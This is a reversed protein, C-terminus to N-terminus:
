KPPLIFGPKLLLRIVERLSLISHPKVLQIAALPMAPSEADDPDQVLTYGGAKKIALLGEAGDANAGTLVIGVLQSGFTDAATEFLVDISPRSYNVKDDASLSLTEDAEVLLHYDPPAIYVVGAALKEKEDAEKVRINSAADLMRSMYNDSMPSIHQVILVPCPFDVPLAPLLKKLAMLGGASAGIVVARYKPHSNL